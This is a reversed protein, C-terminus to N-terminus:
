VWVDNPATQPGGTDGTNVVGRSLKEALNISESTKMEERTHRAPLPQRRDSRARQLALAAPPGGIM